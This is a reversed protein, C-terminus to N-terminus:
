RELGLRQHWAAISEEPYEEYRRDKPGTSVPVWSAKSGLMLHTREPPVPLESDIASAFSEAAADFEGQHQRIRGRLREVEAEREQGVLPQARELYELATDYRGTIREVEARGLYAEGESVGDGKEQATAGALEYWSM